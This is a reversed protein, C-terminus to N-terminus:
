GDSHPLFGDGAYAPARSLDLSPAARSRCARSTRGDASSSAPDAQVEDDGVTPGTRSLADWVTTCHEGGDLWDIDPLGGTAVLLKTYEVRQGDETIVVHNGDDVRSVPTYLRLDIQRDEYWKLDHIKSKEEPQAGKAFDKITVRNYLPEGEATLVTISADKDKSRLTEAATAGAIGDSPLGVNTQFDRVAQATQEGFM